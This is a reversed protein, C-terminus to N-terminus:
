PSLVRSDFSTYKGPFESRDRAADPAPFVIQAPPVPFPRNQLLTQAAKQQDANPTFWPRYLPDGFLVMKWSLYRVSLYYAEVLSYRGSYLLGFFETPLPFADLYPEGVPGLTVTIGRELANKCWGQERPDHISVAEGSAIHYGIAGPRFTFADEYHRLRYWGVYLAVDPAQGPQSLRQETNEFTVPYGSGSQFQIAFDQLDADYYGYSVPPGKKMGRADVYVKGSLGHSETEMGQDIMRRAHTVTPADIRSVMLLPLLWEGVKGAYGLYLPNPLRGALPYSGAEWWLFSLESDVSAIADTQQYREIEWQAMNLVGWLGYAAQVLEYAHTRTAASPQHMLRALMQQVAVEDRQHDVSVGSVGKVEAKVGVKGFMRRIVKERIGLLREKQELHAKDKIDQHLENLLAVLQKRWQLITAPDASLAADSSPLISELSPQAAGSLSSKQGRVQQEQERLLGIASQKWQQADDIWEEEEATLQPAQVRLPVGFITVLVKTTKSLSKRVLAEQVPKIVAQEYIERSITDTLPLNLDVRNGLPIGRREMYYTALDLSEPSHVNALVVVQEPALLAMVPFPLLCGMLVMALFAYSWRMMKIM